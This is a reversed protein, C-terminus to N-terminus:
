AKLIPPWANHRYTTTDAIIAAAKASTHAICALENRALTRLASPDTHGMSCAQAAGNVLLVLRDRLRLARILQLHFSFNCCTEVPEGTFCAHRTSNLQQISHWSNNHRFACLKLSRQHSSTLSVESNSQAPAYSSRLSSRSMNGSELTCANCKVHKVVTSLLVPM